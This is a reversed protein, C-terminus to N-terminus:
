GKGNSLKISDLKLYKISDLKLYKLIFFTDEPNKM